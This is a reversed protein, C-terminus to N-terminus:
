AAGEPSQLSPGRASTAHAWQLTAGIDTRLTADEATTSTSQISRHGHLKAGLWVTVLENPLEDGSDVLHASLFTADRGPGHSGGISVVALHRRGDQRDLWGAWVGATDASPVDDSSLRVAPASSDPDRRPPDTIGQVVFLLPPLETGAVEGGGTTPSSARQPRSSPRTTVDLPMMGLRHVMRSTAPDPVFTRGPTVAHPDTGRLYLLAGSGDAALRAMAADLDTACGCDTSGFTDGTDCGHHIRIPLPKGPTVTGAILASHTVGTRTDHFDIIGFNGHTTNIRRLPTTVLDKNRLHLHAALDDITVWQMSHREAFQVLERRDAMQVPNEPSVLEAYVAGSHQGGMRSLELAACPLSPRRERHGTPVRVPVVHGPRTFDEPVSIPDALARVTAARDAASIGTTIGARADVTVVMSTTEASVAGAMHVLELRLCDSEPLAVCLFGSSHRIAFATNEVTAMAASYIIAGEDIRDDVLVISHGAALASTAADVRDLAGSRRGIQIM